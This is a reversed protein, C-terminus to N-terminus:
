LLDLYSTQTISCDGLPDPCLEAVLCNKNCKQCQVYYMKRVQINICKQYKVKYSANILRHQTKLKDRQIHRVIMSPRLSLKQGLKTLLTLTVLGSSSLGSVVRIM